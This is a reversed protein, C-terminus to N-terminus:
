FNLLVKLVGKQGARTYAKVGDNLAHSESILSSVDVLRRQLLRLAAGFPGCRSGILKIENVVLDALDLQFRDKVTTKLVFSGRPKLLRRAAAFGSPHGTCEVVVDAWAPPLKSEESAPVTETEIGRNKLIALKSEHHGIVHLHCGTLALVQSILLGLKGDGIIAVKHEPQIHIQELIECAAALPETFVAEENSVNDPIIHLNEPPLRTFQAHAGPRSLIGLVSRTPCHRELGKLCSPCHGCAANIEGVVRQGILTPNPSELVTAVFEHGPIGRFGMYGSRLQLDTDCIGAVEVKLLAEGNSKPTELEKLSISNNELFLAEM